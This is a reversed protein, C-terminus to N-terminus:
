PLTAGEVTYMQGRLLPLVMMLYKHGYTTKALASLYPDESVMSPIAFSESVSGVSKSSHMWNYEGGIGQSSAQINLVLMHASLLHYATTYKEQTSFLAENIDFGAETQARSIDTDLINKSVDDGYPFDRTFYSKFDEVTPNDYM